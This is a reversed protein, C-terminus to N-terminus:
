PTSNNIIIIVTIMSIFVIVTIITNRTRHQPALEEQLPRRCGKIIWFVVVGVAFAFLFLLSSFLKLTFREM